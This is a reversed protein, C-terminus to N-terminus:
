DSAGNRLNESAWPSGLTQNKRAEEEDRKTWLRSEDAYLHLAERGGRFAHCLQQLSHSELESKKWRRTAKLWGVVEHQKEESYRKIRYVFLTEEPRRTGPPIPAATSPTESGPDRKMAETPNGKPEAPPRPPPAARASRTVTGGTAAKVIKHGHDVSTLDFPGASGEFRWPDALTLRCAKGKEDLDVHAVRKDAMLGKTSM